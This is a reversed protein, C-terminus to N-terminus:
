PKKKKKDAEPPPPPAEGWKASFESVLKDSLVQLARDATPARVEFTGIWFTEDTSAQRLKVVATFATFNSTQTAKRRAAESALKDPPPASELLVRLRGRQLNCSTKFTRYQQDARMADSPAGEQPGPRGGKKRFEAMAADFNAMAADCTSETRRLDDRVQKSFGGHAERYERLREAPIEYPVEQTQSQAVSPVLLGYLIYDASSAQTVLSLASLKATLKVNGRGGGEGRDLVGSVDALAHGPILRTVGKDVMGLTLLEEFKAAAAGDGELRVLALLRGRLDPVDRTKHVTVVAGEASLPEVKKPQAEPVEPPKASSDPLSPPANLNFTPAGCGIAMLSSALVVLLYRASTM